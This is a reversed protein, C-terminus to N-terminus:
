VEVFIEEGEIKVKFIEIKAQPFVPSTGTEVDFQWGHWPCSVVNQNLSGQELPGGRHPCVANVAYFENNVNWVAIMKGDINVLKNSGTSIENRKCIKVLKGM